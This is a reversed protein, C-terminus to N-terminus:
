RPAPGCSGRDIFEAPLRRLAAAPMGCLTDLVANVATAGAEYYDFRVVSIPPNYAFAWPSDGFCIFSVDGPIRLGCDRIAALLYPAMLHVGAIYATPAEPGHCLREVLGSCQDGDRVISLVATSPDAGAERLASQLAGFRESMQPNRGRSVFCIRRHGLSVLHGFAARNAATEDRPDELNRQAWDEGLPPYIPVGEDIFGGLSDTAMIPGRLILADIRREYLNQLMRAQVERSNQGDAILLEYGRAEAAHEAGRLFDTYIPNALDSLLVGITHTRSSRLGRASPNAKFNLRQAAALVKERTAESTYDSGNLVRSVTSVAVGAARAVDQITVRGSRRNTRNDLPRGEQM